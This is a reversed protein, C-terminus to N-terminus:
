EFSISFPEEKLLSYNTSLINFKGDISKFDKETKESSLIIEGDSEKHKDVIISCIPDAIMGDTNIDTTQVIINKRTKNKVLLKIEPGLIGDRKLKTFTITVYKDDVLVKSKENTADQSDSEITTNENKSDSSSNTSVNVYETSSSTQSSTSSGCGVLSIITMSLLSITLFKKKM